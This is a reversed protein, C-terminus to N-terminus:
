GLGNMLACEAAAQMLPADAALDDAEAKAAALFEAMPMPKDMGDVMVQLDPFQARIAEMRRVDAAGAPAEPQPRNRLLADIQDSISPALPRLADSVAALDDPANLGAAEVGAAARGPDAAGAAAAADGAGRAPAAAEPNPAQTTTPADTRAPQLERAAAAIEATWAPYGDGGLSRPNQRALEVTLPVKGDGPVDILPSVTARITGRGAAQAAVVRRHGDVVRLRGDEMQVVDINPAVEGAAARATYDPLFGRKEPQLRGDPALEPLYLESIPVERVQAIPQGRMDPYPLRVWAGAPATDRADFEVLAGIPDAVPPAVDAVRVPEGRAIQDEARALAAEHQDMARLNDPAGPNAAARREALMVVRAADVAETPYARVADTIASPRSPFPAPAAPDAPSAADARPPLDPLSAVARAIKQQRVGYAAFGAPLLTAVALGVPDFPDFQAGIQGYGAGQLIERTLAQQAIFGGPGGIAYLGATAKLTQGVAPLAALALGAGQVAGAASRTRFDVGQARLDDAASMGEEAGAALVGAPGAALAGGVVKTAGRAFGYLLQEAAHATTPDPRYSRGAERLSDGTVNTLDVGEALLKSRAADAQKRAEGTPSYGVAEPYAGLVQGYGGLVEATSALGQAAAEVVGRVPATIARWASFKTEAPKPPLPKAIRDRAAAEIDASFLDDIM